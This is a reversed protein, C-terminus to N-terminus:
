DPTVRRELAPRSRARERGQLTSLVEGLAHGVAEPWSVTKDLDLRMLSMVPHPRHMTFGITHLFRASLVCRGDTETTSGYAEIAQHGHAIAERAIVQLLHRAHGGRREEPACWMTALLLADESPAAPLARARQVHLPPAFLAFAVLRGEHWIAKGPTGWDLQVARWWADQAIPDSVGDVGPRTATTQWYMCGRCPAPLDELDDLDLQRVRPSLM